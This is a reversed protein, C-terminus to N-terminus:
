LVGAWVEREPGAPDLRIEPYNEWCLVARRDPWYRPWHLTHHVELDDGRVFSVLAAHMASAVAVVGTGSSPAHAPLNGWWLPLDAVHTAPVASEGDAVGDFRYMWVAESREALREALRISPIAYEEATLARIRREPASLQPLLLALRHEVPIFQAQPLHALWRSGPAPGATADIFAACEDRSTGILVPVTACRRDAIRDLVPSPLFAEDVVPRFAFKRDWRRAAAEQASLLDRAPLELLRRGGDRPLGAEDCVLDAVAQADGPRYFTHAGGSSVVLRHFLGHADPVGLLTASIKAGASEGGHTVRRTAGSHASTGASGNSRWSWTACRM